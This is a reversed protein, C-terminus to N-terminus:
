PDSDPFTDGSTATYHFLTNRFTARQLFISSCSRSALYYDYKLSGVEAM